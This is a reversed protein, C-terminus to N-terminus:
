KEYKLSDNIQSEFDSFFTTDGKWNRLFELSYLNILKNAIIELEKKILTNNKKNEKIPSGAIFILNEKKMINFKKTIFEFSLLGTGNSIEKSNTHFISMIAGFLDPNVAEEYFHNFLLIGADNLIWLDEIVKVV